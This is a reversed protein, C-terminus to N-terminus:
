IPGVAHLKCSAQQLFWCLQITPQLGENKPQIGNSSTVFPMVVLLLSAVLNSAMMRLLLAEFKLSGDDAEQGLARPRFHSASDTLRHQSCSCM